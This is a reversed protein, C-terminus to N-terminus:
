LTFDKIINYMNHNDDTVYMAVDVSGFDQAATLTWNSSQALFYLKVM